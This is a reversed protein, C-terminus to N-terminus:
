GQVSLGARVWADIGGELNYVELEPHDLMLRQCAMASRKGFHCHAILKKGHVEPLSAQGLTGLPINTAGQIRMAAHEAPERVDIIVAEGMDLWQKASKADVTKM